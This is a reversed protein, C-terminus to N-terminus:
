KAFFFAYIESKEYDVSNVYAYEVSNIIIVTKGSVSKPIVTIEGSNIRFTSKDFVGKAQSNYIMYQIGSLSINKSRGDKSYKILSGTYDLFDSGKFTIAETKSDGVMYAAVNNGPDSDDYKYYLKVERGIFDRMYGDAPLVSVVVDGVRIYESGVESQGTLTTYGNDTVYGKVLKMKLVESMFTKAENGSYNYSEVELM